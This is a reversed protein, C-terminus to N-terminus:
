LLKAIWSLWTAADMGWGQPLIDAGLEDFAADADGPHDLLFRAVDAKVACIEEPWASAAFKAMIEPVTGEIAYDQHFWGGLLARLAPYPEATM